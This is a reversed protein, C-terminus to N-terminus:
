SSYYRGKWETGVKRYHWRISNLLILCGLIVALPHFFCLFLTLLKQSRTFRLALVLRMLVAMGYCGLALLILLLPLSIVLSVLLLLPPVVFLTIDFLIILLAALLSYDYFAFFTKSFGTWTNAFSTYMHCYIMDFADVFAIRYGAAKVARALSVDELIRGKIAEHGGAAAYALRRFCLLPGNGAALIPMPCRRMLTLPLLTFVRFCLLPMILREGIGKLGYESQATLLDVDLRRMCDIVARVTEPAHVTDADTFFLYEGRAHQSLQHCAFNKGVWNAPLPEGRLLRLRGKQTPALEDIICQVIAATADSSRDDLVLVELREYRQGILSYVCTAIHAEENRAPVLLSVVPDASTNGRATAHLRHFSLLNLLLHVFLLFLIGAIAVFMVVLFAM